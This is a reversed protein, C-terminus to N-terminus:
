CVFQYDEQVTPSFEDLRRPHVLLEVASGVSPDLRAREGSGNPATSVLSFVLVRRRQYVPAEDRIPPRIYIASLNSVAVIEQLITVMCDAVVPEESYKLLFLVKNPNGLEKRLIKQIKNDMKKFSDDTICIDEDKVREWIYENLYAILDDSCPPKM